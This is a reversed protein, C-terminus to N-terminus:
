FMFGAGVQYRIFDPTNANDIDIFNQSVGGKIFVQRNIAYRLGAGIGYDLRNSTYTQAVPSCIYGNWPDYWCGTGINGTPIGSDIYTSGAFLNVYPTFAKRSINYTLDFDITSTYLNATFKEKAGNEDVRTGTYNSSSTRFSMGLELYDSYNYGFGFMFGSNRSIDAEAGNQFHVVKANTVTPM